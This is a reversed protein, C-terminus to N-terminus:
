SLDKNIVLDVYAPSTIYGPKPMLPIDTLIIIRITADEVIGAM